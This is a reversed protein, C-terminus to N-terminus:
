PLPREQGEARTPAQQPLQESRLPSPGERERVVIAEGRPAIDRLNLMAAERVAPEDSELRRFLPRLEAEAPPTLRRSLAKVAQDGALVCQWFTKADEPRALSEWVADWDTPAPVSIGFASSLDWLLATTDAGDDIPGGSTCAHSGERALVHRGTM